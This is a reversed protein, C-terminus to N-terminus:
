SLENQRPKYSVTLAVSSLVVWFSTIQDSGSKINTTTASQLKTTTGTIEAVTPKTTTAPEKTSEPVPKTTSDDGLPPDTIRAVSLGNSTQELDMRPRAPRNLSREPDARAEFGAAALFFLGCGQLPNLPSRPAAAGGEWRGIRNDYEPAM